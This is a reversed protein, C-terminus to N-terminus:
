AVRRASSANRGRGKRAMDAMNDAHTGLSLHAPNICRPRDCSHIVEMGAPIAGNVLAYAHRHAYVQRGFRSLWGYPETKWRNQTQLSGQWIWCDGEIQVLAWFARDRRARMSDHSRAIDEATFHLNM